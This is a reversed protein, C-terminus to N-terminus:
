RELTLTTGSLRGKAPEIPERLSPIEIEVEFEQGSDPPAFQRKKNEFVGDYRLKSAVEAIDYDLLGKIPALSDEVLRQFAHDIFDSGIERGQVPRLEAAQTTQRGGVDVKLLAFEVTGAGSDVVLVTDGSKFPNYRTNDCLVSAAVAQPETLPVSVMHNPNTGFPSSEVLERFTDVVGTDWTAPTSFLFQISAEDWSKNDLHQSLQKSLNDHLCQLYDAYLRRVQDQDVNEKGLNSDWAVPARTKTNSTNYAVQTPVKEDEVWDVVAVGVGNRSRFAVGTGSTGIDIGVILDM